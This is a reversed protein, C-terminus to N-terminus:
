DNATKEKKPGGRPPTWGHDFACYQGKALTRMLRVSSAVKRAEKERQLWKLVDWGEESEPLDENERLYLLLECALVGAPMARIAASNTPIFGQSINVYNVQAWSGNWDPGKAIGAPVDADFTSASNLVSTSGFTRDVWRDNSSDGSRWTLAPLWESCGELDLWKLCYLNNSLRRLINAAEYWDQDMVSYIHSGGLSINGHGHTHQVFATKSNPTTTPVPWYALSLHTLTSLRTSLTLLQRWSAYQGAHALSLRTLNPFRGTSLSAPIRSSGGEFDEEWSDLLGDDSEGALEATRNTVDLPADPRSLIYKGVDSLSIRQSLLRSFDLRTIEESGTGGELENATSFLLRLDDADIGEDPNHVGIYSLLIGKLYVPLAALNYQEYEAVFEWNRAMAKLAQDVLSGKVPLNHSGELASLRTFEAPKYLLKLNGSALRARERAQNRIHAPAHQSTGLSWSQPAAPGAYARRLIGRHRRSGPRPTPPATNPMDLLNHLEPPMSHATAVTAIERRRELTPRPAQEIRLQALRENVTRPSPSSAPGASARLSQANIHDINATFKQNRRKPM